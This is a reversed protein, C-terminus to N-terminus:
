KRQIYCRLLILDELERVSPTRGNDSDETIYKLLIKYNKTNLDEVRNTLNIGFYKM